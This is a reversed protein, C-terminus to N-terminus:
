QKPAWRAPLTFGSPLIIAQDYPHVVDECYHIGLAQEIKHKLMVQSYSTCGQEHIWADLDLGAKELTLSPTAKMAQKIAAARRQQDVMVCKLKWEMMHPSFEQIEDMTVGHIQNGRIESM